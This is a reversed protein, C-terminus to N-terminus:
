HTIFQYEERIAKEEDRRKQDQRIAKDLDSTGEYVRELADDLYSKGEHVQELPEELFNGDHKSKSEEAIKIAEACPNDIVRIAVPNQSVAIIQLEESPKKIDQISIGDKSVLYKQIAYSPNDIYMKVIMDRKLANIVEEDTAGPFYKLNMEHQKLMIQKLVPWVNVQDIELMNRSSEDIARLAKITFERESQDLKGNSIGKAYNEDISQMVKKCALNDVHELKLNYSPLLTLAKILGECGM